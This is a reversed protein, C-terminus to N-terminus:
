AARGQAAAARGAARAAVTKDNRQLTAECYFRVGDADTYALGRSALETFRRRVARPKMGAFEAADSETIFAFRSSVAAEVRKVLDLATAAQAEHGHRQLIMAEVRIDALVDALRPAGAVRGDHRVLKPVRAAGRARKVRHGFSVDQGNSGTSYQAEDRCM